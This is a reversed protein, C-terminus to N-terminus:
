LVCMLAFTALSSRLSPSPFPPPDRARRSVERVVLHMDLFSQKLEKSVSVGAEECFTRGLDPQGERFFHNAVVEDLLKADLDTERSAFSSTGFHKDVSKGLRSVSGYFDQSFVYGLPLALSLTANKANTTPGRCLPSLGRASAGPRVKQASAIQGPLELKVLKEHLAKMLEDKETVTACAQLKGKTEKIEEEQSARCLCRCLLM